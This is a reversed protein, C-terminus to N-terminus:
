RGLEQLLRRAEEQYTPDMHDTHPLTIADQLETAAKETKGMMLWTRGLQVRAYVYNPNLERARLLEREAMENTGEPLGGLFLNAFKRLAWNLNAVELYYKGLVGRARWCDPDLELCNLLNREVDRSLRVKERGGELLAVHGYAIATQLWPQISDPYLTTFREGLRMGERLYHEKDEGRADEGVDITAKVVRLNFEWVLSDQAYLEQYRTLAARNMFSASLQDGEALLTKQEPTLATATQILLMILFLRTFCNM